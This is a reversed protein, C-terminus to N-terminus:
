CSFCLVCLWLHNCCQHPTPPHTRVTVSPERVQTMRQRTREEEDLRALVTDKLRRSVEGVKLLDRVSQGKLEALRKRTQEVKLEAEWRQDDISYLKNEKRMNSDMQGSTLAAM